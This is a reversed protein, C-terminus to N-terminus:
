DLTYLPLRKLYWAKIVAFAHLRKGTELPINLALKRTRRNRLVVDVDSM